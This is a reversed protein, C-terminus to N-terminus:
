KKLKFVEYVLQNESYKPNYKNNCSIIVQGEHVNIHHYNYLAGKFLKEGLIEFKDNLIIISWNAHLFNNLINNSNRLAQEHKVIRYYVNNNADYLINRYYAATNFFNKAEQDDITISKPIIEDVFESKACYVTKNKNNKSFVQVEHSAPYSVVISNDSVCFSPAEIFPFWKNKLESYEPPYESFLGNFSNQSLNYEGINLEKYHEEPNDPLTYKRISYFFFDNDKTISPTINSYINTGLPLGQYTLNQLDYISNITGSTDIEYIIFPQENILFIRSFDTILFSHIENKFSNRGENNLKISKLHDGQKMNYVDIQRAERDFTVLNMSEIFHEKEILYPVSDPVEVLIRSIKELEVSESSYSNECNKTSNACSLQFIVLFLYIFYTKKM